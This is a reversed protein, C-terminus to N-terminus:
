LESTIALLGVPIATIWPSLRSGTHLRETSDDCTEHQRACSHITVFLRPMTRRSKMVGHIYV